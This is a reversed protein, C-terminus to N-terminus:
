KAFYIIIYLLELFAKLILREEELCKVYYGLKQSTTRSYLPAYTVGGIFVTVM